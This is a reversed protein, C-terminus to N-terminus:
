GTRWRLIGRGTIKKEVLVRGGHSFAAGAGCVVGRGTGRNHSGCQFRLGAAKRCLAPFGGAPKGREALYWDSNGSAMRM